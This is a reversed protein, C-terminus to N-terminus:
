PLSNSSMIKIIIIIINRCYFLTKDVNLFFFRCEFCFETKYQQSLFFYTIINVLSHKNAKHLSVLVFTFTLTTCKLLCSKKRGTLQIHLLQRRKICWACSFPNDDYSPTQFDHSSNSITQSVSMLEFVFMSILRLGIANTKGYLATRLSNKHRLLRIIYPLM